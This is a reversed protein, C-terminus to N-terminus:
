HAKQSQILEATRDALQGLLDSMSTVLAATTLATPREEVRVPDRDLVADTAAM